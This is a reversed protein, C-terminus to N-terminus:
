MRLEIPQDLEEGVASDGIAEDAVAPVHLPQHRQEVAARWLGDAQTEGPRGLLDVVGLAPTPAEAPDEEGHRQHGAPPDRRRQRDHHVAAIPMLQALRRVQGLVQPTVAQVHDQRLRHRPARGAVAIEGGPLPHRHAPLDLGHRRLGAAM